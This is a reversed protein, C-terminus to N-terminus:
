KKSLKEEEEWILLMKWLSVGAIPVRLFHNPRYIEASPLSTYLYSPDCFLQWEEWSQFYAFTHDSVSVPLCMGEEHRKLTVKDGKERGGGGAPREATGKHHCCM